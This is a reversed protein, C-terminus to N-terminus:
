KPPSQRMLAVHQLMLRYNDIWRSTGEENMAKAEGAWLYATEAKGFQGLRHWHVALAMRSEEHLPALTIAHQIQKLAEDHRSQADYADALALTYLYHHANLSVAKELDQTARKLVPHNPSRQDTTLKELLALGRQYHAEPNAPDTEVAANLQQLREFGDKQSEAIQAWALHYDSRGHLWPGTVLLLSAAALLLKTLLRVPPMRFQHHESGEFGPNALLGLLLAATLAPIAVHFQFEFFAHILMAVLAALAGLSLALNNSLVRGTQLFRHTTFWHLFTLGNWLHLLIVLGLLSLGIWGYDALMQLYENHAFLAEGAYAPLKESRYQISGDYFMRSGAGVLPSQAHQALAAHWIELRVDNAMPSTVERGRLYEENVKWLVSGGLVALVLGSGLLSWFLHRQTQWVVILGLLSFLVGGSALGTLAGRSATLAVGLMMSVILFGLCMKLMAGGRGFCLFGAALFLVMTFFAGLHNPNAFFGGIRGATATRIFNPVVHYQWHGSLHVFGVCLNGIVLVLLVSMLALRWRPHSAATVTLMYTVWAGALIFLDERAYAAVPSFCARAAIYCAFLSIAALCLDSPPFLVRLRWKLTAVLGALGLVAAGPWFFLLRTETGLVGAILLGLLFLILAVAQM